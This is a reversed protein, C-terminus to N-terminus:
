ATVTDAALGRTIRTPNELVSFDRSTLNVLHPHTLVAVFLDTKQFAEMAAKDRWTYVGGYTNTRSNRLWVKALLGEVNQFAPAFLTDCAEAYDSDSMEHLNFNVIQIHM